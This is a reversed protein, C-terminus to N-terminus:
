TGEVYILRVYSAWFFDLFEESRRAYKWNVDQAWPDCTKPNIQKPQLKPMLYVSATAWLQETFFVSKFFGCFECSRQLGWKLLTAAIFLPFM